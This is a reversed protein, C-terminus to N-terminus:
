VAEANFRKLFLDDSGGERQRTSVKILGAESRPKTLVDRRALQTAENLAYRIVNWPQRRPESHSGHEGSRACRAYAAVTKNDSAVEWSTVAGVRIRWDVRRRMALTERNQQAALITVRPALRM